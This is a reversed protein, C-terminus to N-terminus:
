MAILVPEHLNEKNRECVYTKWTLEFINKEIRVSKVLQCKKTIVVPDFAVVCQAVYKVNFCATKPM